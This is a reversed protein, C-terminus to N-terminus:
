FRGLSWLGIGVADIAHSRVRLRNFKELGIIRKVRKEVISKPLQGKWTNVPVLVCPLPHVRGSIIGVLTTLKLLDGSRAVTQGLSSEFYSPYEVIVDQALHALTLAVVECAIQHARVEFPVSTRSSANRRATIIGVARLRRDGWLAWGTGNLGPDISLRVSKYTM